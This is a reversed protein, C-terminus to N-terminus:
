DGKENNGTYLLVTGRSEGKSVDTGMAVSKLNLLYSQIPNGRAEERARAEAEPRGRYVVDLLDQVRIYMLGDERYDLADVAQQFDANGSLSGKHEAILRLQVENAALAVYDDGLMYGPHESGGSGDDVLYATNGAVETKRFIPMNQELRQRVRDLGERAAKPDPTELLMAFGSGAAQGPAPPAMAVGYEGTYPGFVDKDLDVGAQQELAVLVDGRGLGNLTKEVNARARKWTGSLDEGAYFFYSDSPVLKALKQGAPGDDSLDVAYPSNPAYSYFDIRNGGEMPSLSGGLLGRTPLGTAEVGSIDAGRAYKTLYPKADAYFWATRGEPLNELVRRYDKNETLNPKDGRLRDVGAQVVEPSDGLLAVGDTVTYAMQPFPISTITAEKYTARELAGEGGGARASLVRDLGARAQGESGDRVAIAFLTRTDVPLTGDQREASDASTPDFAGVGLDRGMWPLLDREIDVGDKRADAFMESLWGHDEDGRLKASARYAAYLARPDADLTIGAYGLTGQPMVRAPDAGGDRVLASITAVGAVLVLLVAALAGLLLPLRGGLPRTGTTATQPAGARSPAAPPPMPQTADQSGAGHADEPEAPQASLQAGCVGCYLAKDGVDAGCNPCYKM